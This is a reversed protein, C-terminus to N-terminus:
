LYSVHRLKKLFWHGYVPLVLGVLAAVIGLVLPETGGRAMYEQASWGAMGFSLLVSMVVFFVHFAKLSM